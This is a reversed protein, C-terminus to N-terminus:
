KGKGIEIHLSMPEEVDVEPMSMDIIGNTYRATVDECRV